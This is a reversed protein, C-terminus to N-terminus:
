EMMNRNWRKRRDKADGMRSGLGEETDATLMEVEVIEFEEEGAAGEVLRTSTVVSTDVSATLWTM